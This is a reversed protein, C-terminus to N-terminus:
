VKKMKRSRRRSKSKKKNKIVNKKVSSSEKFFKLRMLLIIESTINKVQKDHINRFKETVAENRDKIAYKLKHELEAIRTDIFVKDM